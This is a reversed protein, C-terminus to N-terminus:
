KRENLIEDIRNKLTELSRRPVDALPTEYGNETLQKVIFDVVSQPLVRLCRRLSASSAVNVAGIEGEDVLAAVHASSIGLADAVEGPPVCGRMEAFREVVPWKVRGPYIKVLPKVDKIKRMLSCIGDPNIPAAASAAHARSESKLAEPRSERKPASNGGNADYEYGNLDCKRAAADWTPYTGPYFAGTPTCIKWDGMFNVIEVKM